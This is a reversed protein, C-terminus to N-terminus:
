FTSPVIMCMGGFCFISSTELIYLYEVVSIDFLGRKSTGQAVFSTGILIAWMVLVLNILPIVNLTLDVIGNINPFQCLTGNRSYDKWIWGDMM